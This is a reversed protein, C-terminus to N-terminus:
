SLESEIEVLDRDIGAEFAARRTHTRIYDAASGREQLPDKGGMPAFMRLHMTAEEQRLACEIKVEADKECVRCCLAFLEEALLIQKAQAKAEVGGDSLTKRMFNTVAGTQEVNGQVLTFIYDRSGKEYELAIMASSLVDDGRECFAAAEDQMFRLLEETGRTKSRSRNLASLLAQESFPKGERDTMEGLDATYLFLRDGQNLRLLESRYNVSENAGLPAYVPTKLWEYHEESRMLIPMVGGANVFTYRGNMTDLVGVFACASNRGGLDYLQTNVDSMADILSRGMRLRSRITTQTVVAFLAEAIGTGPVQAVVTCLMRDDLFFYDYFVCNRRVGRQVGGAASFTMRALNEKLSQPLLSSCIEDVVRREAAGDLPTRESAQIEAPADEEMAEAYAAIDHAAAGAVGGIADARARLERADLENLHAAMERLRRVPVFVRARLLFLAAACALLALSAVLGVLKKPVGQETAPQPEPDPESVPEPQPTEIRVTGTEQEWEVSFGVADGLERLQVYNRGDILYTDLEVEEGNVLIESLNHEVDLAEARAISGGLLLASVLLCFPARLAKKRVIKRGEAVRATM